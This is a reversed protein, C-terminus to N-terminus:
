LKKYKNCFTPGTNESDWKIKDDEDKSKKADATKASQKNKAGASKRAGASHLFDEDTYIDDMRKDTPHCNYTNM